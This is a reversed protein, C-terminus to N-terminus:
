EPDCATLSADWTSGPDLLGTKFAGLSYVCYEGSRTEFGAGHVANSLIRVRYYEPTFTDPPIPLATLLQNGAKDKIKTYDYTGGVGAERLERFNIGASISTVLNIDIYSLSVADDIVKLESKVKAYRSKETASALNLIIIVALIGIIAIVVLLEILTFGRKKM